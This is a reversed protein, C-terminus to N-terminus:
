PTSFEPISMEIIPSVFIKPRIPHPNIASKGQTLESKSFLRQRVSHANETAAISAHSDNAAYAMTLM